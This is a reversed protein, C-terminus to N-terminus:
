EVDRLSDRWRYLRSEWSRKSMRRRPDPTRPRRVGKELSAVYVTGEKYAQVFDRRKRITDEDFRYTEEKGGRKGTHSRGLDNRRQNKEAELFHELKKEYDRVDRLDYFEVNVWDPYVASAQLKSVSNLCFLPYSMSGPLLLFRSGRQKGLCTYARRSYEERACAAARVDFYVIEMSVFSRSFTIAFTKVDGFREKMDVYEELNRGWGWSVHVVNSEQPGFM